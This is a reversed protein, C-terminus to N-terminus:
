VGRDLTWLQVSEVGLEDTTTGLIYDAGIEFVTLSRPTEVFGRVRGDADFVTWINEDHGPFRYEQVWLHGLPDSHLAQFAPFFDVLTMGENLERLRAQDEEPRDAYSDALVADLEAQTPARLEHERRVIRVLTGDPDYAGIEYRDNPAVVALSGWVTGLVSRGFPHPRAVPGSQSFFWEDGAHTGLTARIEGLPTVLAYEAAQRRLTSGGGGFRMGVPLGPKALIDGNPMRGLLSFRGDGLTTTRGHVGDADFVVIQGRWWAAAAISDGPWASVGEPDFQAFEGPGEGVTGWSMLHDGDASFIRIESTGANAVAIRGDSLRTADEVGYLQYAARGDQVGISVAPEDGVWWGLRSETAPRANEVITVGASDRTESWLLPDSHSETECAAALSLFLGPRLTRLARM